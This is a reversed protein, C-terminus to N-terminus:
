NASVGPTSVGKSSLALQSQEGGRWGPALSSAPPAPLGVSPPRGAGWLGQRSRPGGPLAAEATPSSLAHKDPIFAEKVFETKSAESTTFVNLMRQADGKM